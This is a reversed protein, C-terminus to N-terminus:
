PTSESISVDHAGQWLVSEGLSRLNEHGEVVTAFHNGALQGAKSAFNVYGYGLLLETESVGKPYLLMEGPHPYSTANEAGIGLDLDGMPAWLAEGSWRVHILQTELPLLRKFAAVTEPAAQEEFRMLFRYDGVNLTLVGSDYMLGHVCAPVAM